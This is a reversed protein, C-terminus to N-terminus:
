PILMLGVGYLNRIAVALGVYFAFRQPVNSVESAVRKHVRNPEIYVIDNTQLYYAESDFVTKNTLDVSIPILKGECERVVIVNDREGYITIDGCMALAELITLRNGEIHLEKPNNVEGIVSVRFNLLSVTVVPNNVYGRKKLQNEILKGLSDQTIGAVQLCGIMPFSIFGEETVLYNGIDSGRISGSGESIVQDFNSVNMSNTRNGEIVTTRSELNFPVAVESMQSYVYIYLKDGPHIVSSYTKVIEQSSNEADSIYGLKSTSCSMLVFTMFLMAVLSGIDRVSHM